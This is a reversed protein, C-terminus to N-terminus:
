ADPLREFFVKLYGDTRIELVSPDSDDDGTCKFYVSYDDMYVYYKRRGLVLIKPGKVGWRTRVREREQLSFCEVGFRSALFPILDFYKRNLEKVKRRAVIREAEEAKKQSYKGFVKVTEIFVEEPNLILGYNVLVTENSGGRVRYRKSVEVYPSM